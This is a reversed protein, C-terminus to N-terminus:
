HSHHNHRARHSAQGLAWMVLGSPLIPSLALYVISGVRFKIRDRVVAEYSRDLTATIARVDDITVGRGAAEADREVSM